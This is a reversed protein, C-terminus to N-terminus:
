TDMRILSKELTRNRYVLDERKTFGIKEWFTNGAENKSFVVLFVKNIKERQLAALAAEVLATGIGQGRESVKVATHHILGRRGDHGCLIVGVIEGGNAAVFCTTPNRTLYRQIGERSDDLNNLGMGPTHVWLLYVSDYDDITMNRIKM